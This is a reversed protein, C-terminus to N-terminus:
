KGGRITAKGPRTPREFREAISVNEKPRSQLKRIPSESRETRGAALYDVLPRAGLPRLGVPTKRVGLDLRRGQPDTIEGPRAGRLRRRLAAPDEEEAEPEPEPDPAQRGNWAGFHRPARLEERDATLYEVVRDRLERLAARDDEGVAPWPTIALGDNDLTVRVGAAELRDLLKVVDPYSGSDAESIRHREPVANGAPEQPSRRAAEYATLKM